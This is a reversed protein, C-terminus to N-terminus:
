GTGLKTRQPGDVTLHRLQQAWRASTNIIVFSVMPRRHVVRSNLM